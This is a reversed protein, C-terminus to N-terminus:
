FGLPHNSLWEKHTLKLADRDATTPAIIDAGGDYPAYAWSMEEDTVIFEAQWDAALQLLDTLQGVTDYPSVWFYDLHVPEGIEFDNPDFHSRWPWSGPMHKKTWGGALDGSDWDRGIVCVGASGSIGQLESIVTKHRHLVERREEPTDAYRKSEPL